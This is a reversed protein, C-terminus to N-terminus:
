KPSRRRWVGLFASRKHNLLDGSHYRNRAHRGYKNGTHKSLDAEIRDNNLLTNDRDFLFM